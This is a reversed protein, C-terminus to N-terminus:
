EDKTLTFKKRKKQHDFLQMTMHTSDSRILHYEQDEGSSALVINKKSSNTAIQANKLVIRDNCTITWSRCNKNNTKFTYQEHKGLWAGKLWVANNATHTNIFILLGISCIIGAGLVLRKQNITLAKFQRWLKYLGTDLQDLISKLQHARKSLCHNGAKM